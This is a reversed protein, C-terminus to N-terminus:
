CSPMRFHLGIIFLCYCWKAHCLNWWDQTSTSHSLDGQATSHAKVVPTLLSNLACLLVVCLCKQPIKVTQPRDQASNAVPSSWSPFVKHFSELKHEVHWIWRSGVSYAEPTPYLTKKHLISIIEQTSTWQITIKHLRHWRSTFSLYGQITWM